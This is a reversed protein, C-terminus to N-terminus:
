WDGLLKTTLQGEELLDTAGPGHEHLCGESIVASVCVRM